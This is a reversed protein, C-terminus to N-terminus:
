LICTENLEWYYYTGEFSIDMRKPEEDSFDWYVNNTVVHLNRIKNDYYTRYITPLGKGRHPLKTSSRRSGDFAEKIFKLNMKSDIEMVSGFFNDLGTAIRENIKKFITDTIGKGNDVFVMRVLRDEKSHDVALLWSSDQAGGFAHNVSNAMMEIIMRQLPQFRQKTGTITELCKEVIVSSTQSEVVNKGKTVIINEIKESGNITGNHHNFLGSQLIYRKANPNKPYNAQVIGGGKKHLYLVSAFMGIADHSVELTGEFDILITKYAKSRERFTKIFDLFQKLNGHLLFREPALLTMVVSDPEVLDESGSSYSLSRGKRKSKRFEDRQRALIYTKFKRTVTYRKM